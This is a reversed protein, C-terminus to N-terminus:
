RCDGADIEIMALDISSPPTAFTEFPSVDLAPVLPSTTTDGDLDHAFLCREEAGFWFTDLEVGDLMQAGNYMQEMSETLADITDDRTVDPSTCNANHCIVYPQPRPDCAALLVAISCLTRM